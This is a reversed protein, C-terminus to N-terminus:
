WEGFDLNRAKHAKVTCELIKVSAECRDGATENVCDNAIDQATKLKAADGDFAMKALAVVGDVSIQNNKM